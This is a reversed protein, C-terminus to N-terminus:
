LKYNNNNLNLEWYVYTGSFDNQLTKYIDNEVDAYAYNSIIRLSSIDNKKLANYIGPLGKGRFTKGTATKHIEGRLLLRMMEADNIDGFIKKIKDIVGLFIGKKKNALSSFIGVGYDIFSFCIKETHGDLGKVPVISSWWMKEGAIESAHNNTNQMLELFVRQVGICRREEGWLLKSMNKIVSDSLIPDAIRNAHTCIKDDIYYENKEEINAKYLYDIFGSEKLMKKAEKNQPFNGNVRIKKSRFQVLKSLLVVIAGYAINQIKTMEIFIDRRLEFCRDIEKIFAVVQETNDLLSFNSPADLHKYSKFSQDLQKKIALEKRQTKSMNNKAINRLRKKGKSKIKRTFLKWDHNEKIIKKNKM